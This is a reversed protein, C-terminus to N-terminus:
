CKTERTEGPCNEVPFLFERVYAFLHEFTAPILRFHCRAACAIFGGFWGERIALLGRRCRYQFEFNLAGGFWALRETSVRKNLSALSALLDFHCVAHYHRSVSSQFAATRRTEGRGHSRITERKRFDGDWSRRFMSSNEWNEGWSGKGWSHTRWKTFYRPFLRFLTRCATPSHGASRAPRYVYTEAKEWFVRSLYKCKSWFKLQVVSHM